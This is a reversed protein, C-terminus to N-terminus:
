WSQEGNQTRPWEEPDRQNSSLRPLANWLAERPAVQTDGSGLLESVLMM